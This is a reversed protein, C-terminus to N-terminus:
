RAKWAVTDIQDGEPTVARMTCTDGDISLLCYHLKSAFVKSYPNQNEANSTKKYLPAGAGGTIIHTIGPCESREYCHDHGAFYATAHYKVLLPVIVDRAQASTKEAPQGRNDTIGHPGSSWAPYHNVLFIFKARTAKLITELWEANKSEASWDGAGDIGILTVAGITQTWNRAKGERSPPYFLEDYLPADAEHNGIVAYVPTSALFAQAPLSFESDWLADNRGDAAMDGVLVAFDPGAKGAAAAVKAWQKPNTRSDGLVVFRPQKGLSPPNPPRKSGLVRFSSGREARVSYSQWPGKLDDIRFRHILGSSTKEVHQSDFTDVALKVTAPMNTRCTVTFFDEGCAGLIPGTQIDLHVAELGLLATKLDPTAPGKVTFDAELTNKGVKLGNPDIGPIVSYIMGDLPGKVPKDNLKYGAKYASNAGQVLSLSAYPIPDSFIDHEAITFVIRALVHQSKGAPIAPPQQSFSRGENSSYEWSSSKLLDVPPESKATQAALSLPAAVIALFLFILKAPRM